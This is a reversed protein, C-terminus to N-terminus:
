ASPALFGGVFPRTLSRPLRSGLLGADVARAIAPEFPVEAVVPVGLVDEVDSRSMARGPEHVLVVGTPTCAAALARRLALYCPRIVLLSQSAAAAVNLPATSGSPAGPTVTGCDVVVTRGLASLAAALAEGREAPLPGEGRPLLRLGEGVEVEIRHLADLPVDPGARMWDALAPGAPEAVGLAAPVDGALDAIVISGSRAMLRALAVAVVTTGSGGKAAWCAHLVTGGGQARDGRPM